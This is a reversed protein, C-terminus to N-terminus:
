CFILCPFPLLFLNGDRPSFGFPAVLFWAFPSAFFSSDWCLSSFASRHCPGFAIAPVLEIWRPGTCRYPRRADIEFLELFPLCWCSFARFCGAFLLLITLFFFTGVCILLHPTCCSCSLSALAVVGVWLVRRCLFSSAFVFGRYFSPPLDL